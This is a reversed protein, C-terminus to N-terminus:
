QPNSTSKSPRAVCILTTGFPIPISASVLLAEARALAYFMGNLLPNMPRLDAAEVADASKRQPLISKIAKGALIIPPGFSTFYNSFVVDFGAAKLMEIFQPLRYRRKGMGAVDLDRSLIPFTPETILLLGSTKLARRVERLVSVESEIWVHYLVNYITAVDFMGDPFPFTRNIDSQVLECGPCAERALRLADPSIDMGVVRLPTLGDLLGLNQGTGCGVDLHACRQPLGFRKLLDVSLKRRSRGWWHQTQVSFVQQYVEPRM